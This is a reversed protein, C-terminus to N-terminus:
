TELLPSKNASRYSVGPRAPMGPLPHGQVRAYCTGIEYPIWVGTRAYVKRWFDAKGTDLLKGAKGSRNRVENVQCEFRGVLDATTGLAKSFATQCQDPTTAKRALRRAEVLAKHAGTPIGSTGGATAEIAHEAHEADSGRLGRFRRRKM